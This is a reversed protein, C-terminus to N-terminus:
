IGGSAYRVKEATKDVVWDLEYDSSGFLELLVVGYICPNAM